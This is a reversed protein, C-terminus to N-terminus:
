LYKSIFILSLPVAFIAAVFAALRYRNITLSDALGDILREYPRYVMFVVPLTLLTVATVSCLVVPSAAAHGVIFSAFLTDIFTTINAGLIYPVLNERRVAGKVTLPVLLSLSVSVSLTISTVIMGLLFTIPPRYITTALKSLKGGTPDVEPLVKDFLKFSSVLLAMGGLAQLWPSLVSAANHVIPKFAVDMVSLLKGSGSYHLGDFLGSKLLLYGLGFAPLYISATTLFALAGVYVGGKDRRTRLDYAFGITLVVFSAGFRSGIIMAFSEQPSILQAGLLGLSIGAVPSGSLVICSLLWGLGFTPLLGTTARSDLLGKLNGASNKIFELALIFVFLSM